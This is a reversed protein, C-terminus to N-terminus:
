YCTLADILSLRRTKFDPCCATALQGYRWVRFRRNRVKLFHRRVKKKIVQNQKIIEFSWLQYRHEFSLIWENKLQEHVMLVLFIFLILFWFVSVNHELAWVTLVVIWNFTRKKTFIYQLIVWAWLVRRNKTYYHILTISKRFEYKIKGNRTSM